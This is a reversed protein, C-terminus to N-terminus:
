ESPYRVSWGGESVFWNAAIGLRCAPHFTRTPIMTKPAVALRSRRARATAIGAAISNATTAV